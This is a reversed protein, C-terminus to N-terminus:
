VVGSCDSVADKFEPTTQSTLKDAFLLFWELGETVPKLTKKVREVPVDTDVWANEQFFVDKDPHWSTQKVSENEQRM